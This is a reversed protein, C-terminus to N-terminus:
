GLQALREFLPQNVHYNARGLKHKQLLDGPAALQNLYKFATLWSVALEGVFEIRPYPSRFLHYLLDQSHFSYGRM